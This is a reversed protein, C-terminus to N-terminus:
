LIIGQRTLLRHNTFFRIKIIRWKEGNKVRALGSEKDFNNTRIYKPQIVWEGSKNIYGYMKNEGRAWTLGNNSFYGVSLFVPPIIYKGTTDVFGSHYHGFPKKNQKIPALGEIFAGIVCINNPELKIETGNPKLVYYDEGIKATAYGNSFSSLDDYKM